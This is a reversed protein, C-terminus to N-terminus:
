ALVPPHRHVTRRMRRGDMTKLSRCPSPHPYTFRDDVLSSFLDVVLRILRRQVASAMM